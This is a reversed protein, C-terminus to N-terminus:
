TAKAPPVPTVVLSSVEFLALYPRHWTPFLISTHPCYGASYQGSVGDWEIHPLGHIGAVQYYSLPSSQDQKTLQQLALIYLDFAPGLTQLIRIDQRLPTEGTQLNVGARSGLITVAGVLQLCASALFLLSHVLM